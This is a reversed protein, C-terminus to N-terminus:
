TYSSFSSLSGIQQSSTGFGLATPSSFTINTLSDSSTINFFFYPSSLATITKVRLMLPMPHLSHSAVVKFWYIVRGFLKPTNPILVSFYKVTIDGSILSDQSLNFTSDQSFINTLLCHM